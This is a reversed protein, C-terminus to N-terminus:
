GCPPETFALGEYCIDEYTKGYHAQYFLGFVNPDFCEARLNDSWAGAGWRVDLTPDPVLIARRLTGTGDCLPDEAQADILAQAAAVEDPCGDDCNYSFVVAGHEMSHMLFGRPIAFDYTQFAAWEGYHDGGVAPKPSDPLTACKEVHRAPAVEFAQTVARCPGTPTSPDGSGSPGRPDAEGSCAALGLLVAFGPVRRLLTRVFGVTARPAFERIRAYFGTGPAAGSRSM